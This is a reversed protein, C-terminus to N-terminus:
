VEAGGSVPHTRWEAEILQNAGLRALTTQVGSVPIGTLRHITYGSPHTLAEIALLILLTRRQRSRERHARWAARLRAM